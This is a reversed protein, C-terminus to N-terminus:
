PAVGFPFAERAAYDSAGTRNCGMSTGTGYPQILINGSTQVSTGTGLSWSDTKLTINGNTSANGIVESYNDTYIGYGSVSGAVGTVAISGSTTFINSAGSGKIIYVGHNTGGSGTGGTGTISINGSGGTTINGAIYDGYQQSNIGGSANQYATLSINGSTSTLTGGSVIAIGSEVSGTGGSTGYLNIDGSTTSLTSTLHIGDNFGGSSSGGTSTISINGSATTIASGIKVGYNTNTSGAGGGLGNIAIAGSGSTSIAGTTTIGYNTGSTYAGGAGNMIINGGGANITAATVIGYQTGSSSEGYAYGTGATIAGSGGGLTINGGGSLFSGNGLSIYGDHNADADADMTLNIANGSGSIGKSNVFLINRCGGIWMPVSGITGTDAISMNGNFDRGSYVSIANTSGTYSTSLDDTVLNVDYGSATVFAVPKTFATTTDITLNGSTATATSGITSGIFLTNNTGWFLKSRIADSIAVTGTIGTGSGLSMTTGSVAPLIAIDVTTFVNGSVVPTVDTELTFRNDGMIQDGSVTVVGTDTILTLPSLWTSAGVILTGTGTPKGFILNAWDNQFYGQMASTLYLGSSAGDNIHLNTSTTSAALTLNGTGFINGAFTVADDTLTLNGLPTTAGITSSFTTTATSDSVTLNYAGNVPGTFTVGSNTTTMVSNGGLTIPGSFGIIGTTTINTNVTTTGGGSVFISGPARTAGVAGAFLVNGGSNAVTLTYNQGGVSDVTSNFTVAGGSTTLTRNAIGLIVPGNYTLSKGSTTMNGDLTISAGNTIFTTNTGISTAYLIDIAGTTASGITTSSATDLNLRNIYSSPILLSNGSGSGFDVTTGFSYPAIMLTGSTKVTMDAPTTFLWDNTLITIASTTSTGGITNGDTGDSAFGYNSGGSGSGDIGTITITGTSNGTIVGAGKLYVGYNNGGVGTGGGTGTVSVNGSGVSKVIAANQVSVGYNSTTSAEANSGNGTINLNGNTVSVLTGSGFIFVGGDNGGATGISTGTMTISASGTASVVGAAGGTTATFGIGIGSNSGGTSNGGTGNISVNGDVSSITTGAVGVGYSQTGNGGSDGGYGIVTIAGATAGTASSRLIGYSLLVGCDSGTADSAGGGGTGTITINGTGTTQVAASNDIRVGPNGGSTDIASGNGTITLNGNVVSVTNGSNGIYVGGNSAGTGAGNGAISISAYGTGDILSSSMANALADWGIVVGWNNGGTSNGGTGNISIDGGATAFNAAAIDVGYNNYSGRGGNGTITITDQTAHNAPAATTTISSSGTIFVGLELTGPGNGGTGSLSINGTVTTISAGTIYLGIDSGAISTGGSGTISITGGSGSTSQVTGTSIYVGYDKGTTDFNNSGGTGAISINGPGNVQVTGGLIYVGCANGSSNSYGQGRLSVNGGGANLMGDIEIGSGYSTSSAPGGVATLTEPSGQGGFVIDGGNTSITGTGILITGGGTATDADFVIDLKGSGTANIFKGSSVVIDTGAEFDLTVPDSGM